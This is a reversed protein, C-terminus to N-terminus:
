SQLESTHEESRPFVLTDIGQEDGTESTAMLLGIKRGYTRCCHCPLSTSNVLRSYRSSVCAELSWCIFERFIVSTSHRAAVPSRQPSPATQCGPSCATYQVSILRKRM